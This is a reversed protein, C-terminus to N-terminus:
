RAERAREHIVVDIRDTFAGRGAATLEAALQANRSAGFGRAVAVGHYGLDTLMRTFVLARDLSLAWVAEGGGSDPGARVPKPAVHAEVDVANNLQRLVGGIAYATTAARPAPESSGPAFLLDGPLSIVVRDSLRQVVSRALAEDAAMQQRLLPALYDLNTGPAPGSQELQYEVALPATGSKRLDSRDKALVDILNQWKHEEVQSMSFLLVFFTLMLAILDTFTVMWAPAKSPGAGPRAMPVLRRAAGM